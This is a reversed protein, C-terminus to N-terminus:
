AFALQEHARVGKPAPSDVFRVALVTRDDARTGGTHRDVADLVRLVLDQANETTHDQVLRLLAVDGLAIGDRDTAETIGDTCALLIDGPEFAVRRQRYFTTTSLALVTGTSELREVRKTGARILLAPEHGASIYSLQRRARDVRACFLTAFFNEPSISCAGENLLRVVTVLDGEYSVSLRRLLLQIGSMVLASSVGHGAVDGISLFLTGNPSAVLDYFDGGV